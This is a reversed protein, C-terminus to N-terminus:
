DRWFQVDCSHLDDGACKESCKWVYKFIPVPSPEEGIFLCNGSNCLQNTPNAHSESNWRQTYGRM